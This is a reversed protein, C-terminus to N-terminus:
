CESSVIINKHDVLVYDPQLLCVADGLGQLAVIPDVGLDSLLAGLIPKIDLVQEGNASATTDM